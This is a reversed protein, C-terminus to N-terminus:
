KFMAQIAMEDKIEYSYIYLDDKLEKGLCFFRIQDVKFEKLDAKEIYM